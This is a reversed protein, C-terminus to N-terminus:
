WYLKFAESQDSVVMWIGFELHNKGNVRDRKDIYGLRLILKQDRELRVAKIKAVRALFIDGKIDLTKLRTAIGDSALKLVADKIKTQDNMSINNRADDDFSFTFELNTPDNTIPEM